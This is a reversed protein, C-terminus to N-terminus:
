METFITRVQILQWHIFMSGTGEFMNGGQLVDISNWTSLTPLVHEATVYIKVSDTPIAFLCYQLRIALTATIRNSRAKFVDKTFPVSYLSFANQDKTGVYLCRPM